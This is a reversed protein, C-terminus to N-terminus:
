VCIGDKILAYKSEGIGPVNMIDETTMFPGHEERYRIIKEATKEGIGSLTSLEEEDATNINVKGNQKRPEEEEKGPFIFGSSDSPETIDDISPVYISEESSILYVMDIHDVAAQSKLGGAMEILEYLYVSGEIQYVGPSNVEGCIYVPFVRKEKQLTETGEISSSSELKSEETEITVKNEKTRLTTFLFAAFGLGVLLLTIFLRRKDMISGRFFVKRFTYSILDFIIEVIAIM